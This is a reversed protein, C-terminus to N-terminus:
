MAMPLVVCFFHPRCGEKTRCGIMTYCAHADANFSGFPLIASMPAQHWTGGLEQIKIEVGNTGDRYTVPRCDQNNCCSGKGDPRQWAEYLSHNLDHGSHPDSQSAAPAGAAAAILFAIATATKRM